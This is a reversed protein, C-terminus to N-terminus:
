KYLKENSTETLIQALTNPALCPQERLLAGFATLFAVMLTYIEHSTKYAQASQSKNEVAFQRSIVKDSEVTSGKGVTGHESSMMVEPGALGM